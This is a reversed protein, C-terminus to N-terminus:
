PTERLADFVAPWEFPRDKRKSPPVAHLRPTPFFQAYRIRGTRVGREDIEHEIAPTRGTIPTLLLNVRRSM